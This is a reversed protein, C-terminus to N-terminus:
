GSVKASDDGVISDGRSPSYFRLRVLLTRFDGPDLADPFIVKWHINGAGQPRLGLVIFHRSVFTDRVPSGTFQRGDRRTVLLLDGQWTIGQWSGPLRGFVDRAQYFVLSLLFALTLVVALWAPWTLQWVVIWALGHVLLLIVGLRISPNILM